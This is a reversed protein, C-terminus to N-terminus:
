PGIKRALTTLAGTGRDLFVGLAVLVAFPAAIQPAFDALFGLVLYVLGGAVFLRPKPVDGKGAKGLVIIAVSLILSAVVVRKADAPSM